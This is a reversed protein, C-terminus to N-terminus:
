VSRSTTQESSAKSFRDDHMGFTLSRENTLSEGDCHQYSRVTSYELLNNVVTKCPDQSHANLLWISPYNFPYESIRIYGFILNDPYIRIDMLLLM